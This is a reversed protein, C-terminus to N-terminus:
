SQELVRLPGLDPDDSRHEKPRISGHLARANKQRVINPDFSVGEAVDGFSIGAIEAQRQGLAVHDGDVAGAKKRTTDYELLEAAEILRMADHVILRIVTELRPALSQKENESRVCLQDVVLARCALVDLCLLVVSCVEFRLPAGQEGIPVGIM